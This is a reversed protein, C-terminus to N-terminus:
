SPVKHENYNRFCLEVGDPELLEDSTPLDRFIWNQARLDDISQILETEMMALQRHEKLQLSIRIKLGPHRKAEQELKEIASSVVQPSREADM